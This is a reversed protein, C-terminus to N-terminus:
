KNKPDEAPNVYTVSWPGVSHVQGITEESTWVFHNTGPPMLAFSGSTLAHTKEREFQDGM